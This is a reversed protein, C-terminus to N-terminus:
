LHRWVDWALPVPRSPPAVPWREGTQPHQPVLAFDGDADPLGPGALVLTREPGAGAPGVLRDLVPQFVAAVQRDPFTMPDGGSAALLSVPVTLTTGCSRCGFVTMHGGGGAEDRYTIWM